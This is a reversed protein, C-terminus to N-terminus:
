PHTRRPRRSLASSHLAHHTTGVSRKCRLPVDKRRRPQVAFHVAPRGGVTIISDMASAIVGALRGESEGLAAEALKRDTIDRNIELIATPTGQGDRQVSWRSAVVVEAGTRTRHRLEGEWEGKSTVVEEIASLPSPFVTQLLEHTVRGATEGASWGYMHQAGRNWFIVRDGLDRVLIADHALDLLNAQKKLEEEAQKRASIDRVVKSYGSLSGDPGYLPTIVANAWFTSGDKRVRWGEGEFHGTSAAEQLSTQPANRERDTATYFCSVHKGMIEESQYGKIRVAGENWSAVRGERDLMYVAYDKIGDLLLRFMQESARLKVETERRTAAEAELEKTRQEVRRELTANLLRVQAQSTAAARIEQNIKAGAITLFIVGLFSGLGIAFNTFRRNKGARQQRLALLREEAVAMEAIMARINDMVRKGRELYVAQPIKSSRRRSDVLIAAENLRARALEILANLRRQQDPNDMTLFGLRELDKGTASRGSEYPELFQEQGTLAFGRAGTEVDDFHRLTLELTRTVDYTHAVWDADKTSQRAIQWSLVGMVVTMLVAVAVGVWVRRRLAAESDTEEIKDLVRGVQELGLQPAGALQRREDDSRDVIFATWGMFAALMTSTLMALVSVEVWTFHEDTLLAKSIFWGILSLVLVSAPLARRLFRAGPSRSTLLGGLAWTARSCILGSTLLVYSTVAPLAVTFATVKPGLLLSFIGFLTALAAGLSLLQAPWGARRTRWDIMLLAVGFLLFHVAAAPAMLIRAQALQPPIPGLLLLRDIGLNRSFIREALTVLGAVSVMVAATQAVLKSVRARDSEKRLLWLSIGALITCGAANPATPTSLGWTLLPVIGLKWAILESVGIAISFLSAASAFTSLRKVLGPDTSAMM